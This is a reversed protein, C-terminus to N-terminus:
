ETHVIYSIGTNTDNMTMAVTTTLAASCQPRSVPESSQHQINSPLRSRPAQHSVNNDMQKMVEVVNSFLLFISFHQLTVDNRRVFSLRFM